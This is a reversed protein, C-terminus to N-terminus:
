RLARSVSLRKVIRTTSFYPVVTFPIGTVKHRLVNKYTIRWGGGGSFANVTTFHNPARHEGLDAMSCLM